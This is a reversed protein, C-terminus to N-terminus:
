SVIGFLSITTGIQFSDGANPYVLVSNVATTSAWRGAWARVTNASNNGRSIVTKHKDTASYDMVDCTTVCQNTGFIGIPTGVEGTGSSSGVNTGDGYMQINAYNAGSDGNLKLLILNLGGTTGRVVLRLDRYTAPIAIISVSTATAALTTTYLPILADAM